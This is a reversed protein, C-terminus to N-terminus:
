TDNKEVEKKISKLLYMIDLKNLDYYHSVVILRM